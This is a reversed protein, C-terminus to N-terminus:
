PQATSCSTCSRKCGSRTWRRRLKMSGVVDVLHVTLRKHEGTASRPSVPAGCVDCFRAKAGLDNGCSGCRDAAEGVPNIMRRRNRRPVAVRVGVNVAGRSSRLRSAAFSAVMRIWSASVLGSCLEDEPTLTFQDHHDKRSVVDFAELGGRLGRSCSVPAPRRLLGRLM